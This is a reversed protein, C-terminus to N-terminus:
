GIVLNAEGAESWAEVAEAPSPAVRAHLACIEALLEGRGKTRLEDRLEVFLERDAPEQRFEEVRAALLDLPAKENATDDSVTMAGPGARAGDRPVFRLM